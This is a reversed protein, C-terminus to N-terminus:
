DAPQIEMADLLEQGRDALEEFELDDRIPFVDIVLLEGQALQLVIYREQAGADIGLHANEETSILFLPFGRAGGEPEEHATVDVQQGTLGGVTVEQPETADLQPHNTLFDIAEDVSTVPVADEEASVEAEPIMGRLGAVFVKAGSVHLFSVGNGAVDTELWGAPKEVTLSFTEGEYEFHRSEPTGEATATDGATGQATEAATGGGTDDTGGGPGQGCAMLLASIALATITGLARATM